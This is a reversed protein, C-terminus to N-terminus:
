ALGDFGVSSWWWVGGINKAEYRTKKRADAAAQTDAHSTPSKTFPFGDRALLEKLIAYAEDSTLREPLSTSIIEVMRSPRGQRPPRVIITDSDPETDNETQKLYFWSANGSKSKLNQVIKHIKDRGETTSVFDRGGACFDEVQGILATEIDAKRTGLKIYSTARSQIFAPIDEEYIDFGAPLNQKRMEAREGASFKEREAAKVRLKEEREAQVAAKYKKFDRVLWDVLWDPIPIVPVDHLITYVETGGLRMSGPGVVLSGGGVGKLDYVTPHMLHDKRSRVLRTLDRVNINKSKWPDGNMALKGFEQFSYKTQTYYHHQKFPATQPRSQVTFTLPLTKGTEREIRAAVGDADIDLFCPRGVGRKGVVGVAHNKWYKAAKKIQEATTYQFKQWNKMVGQKTEPLLPTVRFGRAILPLSIAVWDQVEQMPAPVESLPDPLVEGLAVAVTSQSM